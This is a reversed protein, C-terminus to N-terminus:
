ESIPAHHPLEPAALLTAGAQELTALIAAPADHELVLQGIDGLACVRHPARTELKDNTVLVAVDSSAALLARKFTADSPDFAAIGGSVSVACAGLFCRDINLLAVQALAQADVCGGVAADVTGGVMILRVDSRALVAAAIHVSNTAVTLGFDPPLCAVIALNTSGNDLFVLANKQVLAAGARGLAQKRQAHAAMRVAVAQSAPSVPLLPLAGGYVRRCRGAAALARLDRRIADESVGFELALAAAVAGQGQELRLAIIDRRALPLDNNM